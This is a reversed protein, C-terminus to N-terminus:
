SRTVVAVSGAPPGAQARAAQVALAATTVWENARHVGTPGWDVLSRGSGTPETAVRYYRAEAPYGGDPLRKAALLELAEDCRPDAIRGAEALVTLGFLVDYHWYCPYHLQRFSPHIVTGDSVRRYLGHRLFYEAASAAADGTERDGSLRTHLALARLPVLSETFSSARGSARRDCNWGGDPWQAGLLRTVLHDIREDALGLRLLAWVLNGDISAHLRVLGRVRAAYRTEYEESLLWGLAQERLPLLADDGAPYGLEALAVLVWHAGYWKARYPHFPLTGDPRRESLLKSVRPGAATEARASRVEPAEPSSGLVHVLTRLRIAPEASALLRDVLAESGMSV